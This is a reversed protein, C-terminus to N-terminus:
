YIKLHITNTYTLLLLFLSLSLLIRANSYKSFYYTDLLKIYYSYYAQNIGLNKQRRGVPYKM